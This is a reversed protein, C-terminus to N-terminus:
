FIRVATLFDTRNDIPRIRVKANRKVADDITKTTSDGGGAEIMHKTDLAIAVHSVGYVDGGFFLIDGRKIDTPYYPYRQKMTLYDFLDQSTMDGRPNAGVSKLCEIVYGSCDLGTLSCNGGYIYPVNLMSFAYSIFLEKM